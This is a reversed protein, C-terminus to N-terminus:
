LERISLTLIYVVASSDDVAQIFYVKGTATRTIETKAVPKLPSAYLAREVTLFGVANDDYGFQSTGTIVNANSFTGKRTVSPAEGATTYDWMLLSDTEDSGSGRLQRNGEAMFQDLINM